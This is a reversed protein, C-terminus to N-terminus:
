DFLLSKAKQRLQKSVIEKIESLDLTRSWVEVSRIVGYYKEGCTSWLLWCHYSGFVTLAIADLSLFTLFSFDIFLLRRSSLM